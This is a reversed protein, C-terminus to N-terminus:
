LGKLMEDFEDAVGDSMNPTHKVGEEKKSAYSNPQPTIYHTDLVNAYLQKMFSLKSIALGRSLQSESYPTGEGDTINYWFNSEFYFPITPHGEEKVTLFCKGERDLGGVTENVVDPKPLELDGKYKHVNRIKVLKGPTGEKCIKIVEDLFFLMSDFEMKATVKNMKKGKPTNNFYVSIRPNNLWIEFALQSPMEGGELKKGELRLKWNNFANKPVPPRDNYDSM